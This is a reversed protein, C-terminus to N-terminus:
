CYIIESVGSLGNCSYVNSGFSMIANVTYISDLQDSYIMWILEEGNQFGNNEGAQSGWAAISTVSGNWEVDGGLELENLSNMYFVGIWAQAISIGNISIVVDLPILITMNCDTSIINGFPTDLCSGDNETADANYNYANPEHLRTM